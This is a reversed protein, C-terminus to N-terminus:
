FWDSPIAGEAKLKRVIQIVAAQNVGPKYAYTGGNARAMEAFGEALIAMQLTLMGKAFERSSMGQGVVAVRLAPTADITATSDKEVLEVYVVNTFARELVDKMGATFNGDATAKASPEPVPPTWARMVAVVKRATAEDLPNTHPDFAAKKVGAKATSQAASGLAEDPRGCALTALTLVALAATRRLPPRTTLSARAM